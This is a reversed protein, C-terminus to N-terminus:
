HRRRYALLALAGLTALVVTAPEPAAAGGGASTALWNAAIVSIDLGNVVGDGNADGALKGTQLWQSAVLSIDLGNVVGDYNVDGAIPADVRFAVNGQFSNSGTWPDTPLGGNAQQELSPVTAGSTNRFWNYEISSMTSEFSPLSSLETVLWYSSGQSLLPHATSTLTTTKSFPIAQAPWINQNQSLVELTTGPAGANDQTLRVRLLSNPNNVNQFSIPLTVSGLAFNRGRVTFEAAFRLGFITGTDNEGYAAGYYADPAFGGGSDFNDFIVTARASASSLTVAFLALIVYRWERQLTTSIIRNM